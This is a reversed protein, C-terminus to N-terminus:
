NFKTRGNFGDGEIGLIKKCLNVRSDLSRILEELYLKIPIFGSTMKRMYAEKDAAGVGKSSPLLFDSSKGHEVFASSLSLYQSVRDRWSEVYTMHLELQPVDQTLVQMKLKDQLPKLTAKYETEFEGLAKFLDEEKNIKLVDLISYLM